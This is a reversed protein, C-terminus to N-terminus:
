ALQLLMLDRLPILFIFYDRKLIGVIADNIVIFLVEETGESEM